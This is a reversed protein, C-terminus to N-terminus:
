YHECYVVGDCHYYCWLVCDVTGLGKAIDGDWRFGGVGLWITGVMGLEDFRAALKGGGEGRLVYACGADDRCEEVAYCYVEGDEAAESEPGL